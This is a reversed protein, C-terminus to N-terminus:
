PNQEIHKNFITSIKLNIQSGSKSQNFSNSKNNKEKIMDNEDLHYFFDDLQISQYFIMEWKKILYYESEKIDELYKINCYDTFYKGFDPYANELDFPELQKYEGEHIDLTDLYDLIKNWAEEEENIM